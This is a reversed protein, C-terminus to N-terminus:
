GKILEILLPFETYVQDFESTGFHGEGAMIIQTGGLENLMKRGQVDTCNYPDNDSNIFYFQGCNEKIKQWDYVEQLIPGVGDCVEEIFGAVLLVKHVRVKSRELISLILPCGMSHGVLISNETLEVHEHVYALWRELDPKDADPIDPADVKWELKEFHDKLHPLWHDQSTAAMGHLLAVHKM